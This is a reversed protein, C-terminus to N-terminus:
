HGQEFGEAHLYSERQYKWGPQMAGSTELYRALFDRNVNNRSNSMLHHIDSRLRERIPGEIMEREEMKLNHKFEEWARQRASWKEAEHVNNCVVKEFGQPAPFQEPLGSLIAGNTSNYYFCPKNSLQVNGM